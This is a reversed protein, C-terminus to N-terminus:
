AFMGAHPNESESPKARNPAQASIESERSFQVKCNLIKAFLDDDDILDVADNLPIEVQSMIEGKVNIADRPDEFDFCLILGAKKGQYASRLKLPSSNSIFAKRFQGNALKVTQSSTQNLMVASYWFHSRGEEDLAVNFAEEETLDRLRWSAIKGAKGRIVLRKTEKILIREESM